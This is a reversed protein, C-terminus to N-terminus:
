RYIKGKNRKGKREKIKKMEEKKEMEKVDEIEEKLENKRERVCMRKRKGHM